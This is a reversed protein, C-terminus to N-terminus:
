LLAYCGVKSAFGVLRSGLGPHPFVKGISKSGCFLELLRNPRPPTLTAAITKAASGINELPEVLYESAVSVLEDTGDECLAQLRALQQHLAERPAEVMEKTGTGM